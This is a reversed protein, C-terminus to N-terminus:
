AVFVFGEDGEGGDEGGGGGWVVMEDGARAGDGELGVGEGEVAVELARAGEGEVVEDDGGAGAEGRGAGHGVVVLERGDAVQLGVLGADLVGVGDEDNATARYADLHRAVELLDIPRRFLDREHMGALLEHRHIM